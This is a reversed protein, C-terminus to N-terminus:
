GIHKTANKLEEHNV